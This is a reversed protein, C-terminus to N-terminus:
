VPASSADDAFYAHVQAGAAKAAYLLYASDAGGSFALAVAPHRDFFDQLTMPCEGKLSPDRSWTNEYAAGPELCSVDEKVSLETTQDQRDPLACWPELCLFPADTGAPQWIGLYRMQPYSVTLRGGTAPPWCRPKEAPGRWSSPTATSFTGACGCSITSWRTTWRRATMFGASTVPRQRLRAGAPFQVCYDEFALGAELPLKFGPHGGYYFYLRKEDLNEVRFTIRVTSGELAYTLLVRWEAPLRRLDGADWSQVLTLRDAERAALEM